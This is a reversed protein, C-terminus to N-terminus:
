AITPGAREAPRVGLHHRHRLRAAARLTAADADGRPPARHGDGRGLLPRRGAEDGDPRGPASRRRRAVAHLHDHRGYRRRPQGVPPRAPTGRRRGTGLLAVHVVHGHADRGRPRGRARGALVPVVAAPALDAASRVARRRGPPVLRCRGVRQRRPFLGGPRGPARPPPLVQGRPRDADLPQPLPVPLRTRPVRGDPHRPVRPQDPLPPPPRHQVRHRRRRAPRDHDVAGAGPRPRRGHPHRDLQPRRGRLLEPARAGRGGGAAPRAHLEGARLLVNQDRDGDHGAGTADGGRRLPGYPGLGAHHLRLLLRGPCGGGEVARLHARVARADARRGGRPLLRVLGPGGAGAM